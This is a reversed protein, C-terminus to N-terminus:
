ARRLMLAPRARSHLRVIEWDLSGAVKRAERVVNRLAAAASPPPKAGWLGAIVTDITAPAPYAEALVHMLEAVRPATRRAMPGRVVLNASLDVSLEDSQTREDPEGRCPSYDILGVSGDM